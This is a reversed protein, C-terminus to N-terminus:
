KGSPVVWLHDGQRENATLLKLRGNQAVVHIAGTKRLITKDIYIPASCWYRRKRRMDVLIDAVICADPEAAPGFYLLKNESHALKFVCIDNACAPAGAM